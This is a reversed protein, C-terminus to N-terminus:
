SLVVRAMVTLTGVVTALGGLKAWDRLERRSVSFRTALGTELQRLRQQVQTNAPM